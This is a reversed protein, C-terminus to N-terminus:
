GNIGYHQTMNDKKLAKTMQSCTARGIKLLCRIGMQVIAVDCEYGMDNHNIVRYMTRFGLAPFAESPAYNHEHNPAGIEFLASSTPM